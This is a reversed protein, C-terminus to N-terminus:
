KQLKLPDVCPYLGGRLRWRMGTSKAAEPPMLYFIHVPPTRVDRSPPALTAFPHDHSTLWLNSNTAHRSAPPSGKSSDSIRPTIRSPSGQVARAQCAAPKRFVLYRSSGMISFRLTRVDRSPPPTRTAFPHGHSTLWISNPAHQSAPFGEKCRELKVLQRAGALYIHCLSCISLRPARM